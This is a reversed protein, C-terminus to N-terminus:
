LNFLSAPALPIEPPPGGGSVLNRRSRGSLWGAIDAPHGSGDFRAGASLEGTLAEIFDPPADALRGGADLDVAHLWVARARLWPTDRLAIRSGATDEVAAGWHADDLDRWEVNLHVESHAFLNRLARPPQTARRRVDEPDVLASGPMVGLDQRGWSVIEGLARAHYGVHAVIDRRSRGELASPADLDADSMRNLLRAFYATGRRAWDLERAPAGAADYRAGGGQRQRLAARAQELGDSM